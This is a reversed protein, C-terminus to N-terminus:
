TQSKPMPNRYINLSAKRDLAPQIGGMIAKQIKSFPFGLSKPFNPRWNLSASMAAFFYFIIATM